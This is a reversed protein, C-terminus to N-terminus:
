IPKCSQYVARQSVACRLICCGFSNKCVVNVQGADAVPCGDAVFAVFKAAGEVALVELHLMQADRLLAAVGAEEAIGASGGHLVDTDVAVERESGSAVCFAIAAYRSAHYAGGDAVAM